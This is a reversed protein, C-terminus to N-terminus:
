LLRLVIGRSGQQAEVAKELTFKGITVLGLNFHPVDLKYSCRLTMNKTERNM